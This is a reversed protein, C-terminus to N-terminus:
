LVENDNIAKDIESQTKFHEKISKSVYQSGDIYGENYYDSKIQKIRKDNLRIAYVFMVVIFLMLITQIMEINM